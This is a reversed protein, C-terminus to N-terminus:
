GNNRYRRARKKVLAKKAHRYAIQLLKKARTEDFFIARKSAEEELWELVTPEIKKVEDVPLTSLYLLRSMCNCATPVHIKLLSFIRLMSHGVGTVPETRHQRQIVDGAQQIYPQVPVISDIDINAADPDPNNCISIPKEGDTLRKAILRECRPCHWNPGADQYSCFMSSHLPMHKYAIGSYTHQDYKRQLMTRPSIENQPQTTPKM